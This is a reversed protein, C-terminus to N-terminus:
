VIRLVRNVAMYFARWQQEEIALQESGVPELSYFKARRGTESVGWSASIWGRNELRYLAPYLSGQNVALVEGSIDRIQRSIAWGHMPGEALTQLILLDLTGHLHEPRSKTMSLECRSAMSHRDVSSQIITGKNDIPLTHSRSNRSTTTPHRTVGQPAEFGGSSPM